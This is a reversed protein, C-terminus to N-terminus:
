SLTQPPLYGLVENIVQELMSWGAPAAGWWYYRVHTFGSGIALEYGVGDIGIASSDAYATVQETNLRRVIAEMFKADVEIVQTELTPRLAGCHRLWEMVGFKELDLDRRWTTLVALYREGAARSKLLCFNWCTVPQFARTVVVQFLREALDVDLGPPIYIRLLDLTEAEFRAWDNTHESDM